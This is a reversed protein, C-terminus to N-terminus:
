TKHLLAALIRAVDIRSLSLLRIGAWALLSEARRGHVVQAQQALLEKRRGEVCPQLAANVARIARCRRRANEVTQPTEIWQRKEALLHAPVSDLPDVFQEPHYTLDRLQRESRASTTM